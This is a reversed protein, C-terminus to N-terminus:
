DHHLIWNDPRLQSKQRCISEQLRRSHREDLRQNSHVLTQVRGVNEATKQIKPQGSRPDDQVGEREKGQVAQAM